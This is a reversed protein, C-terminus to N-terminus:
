VVSPTEKDTRKILTGTIEVRELKKSEDASPSTAAASAAASPAQQAHAQSALALAVAAALQLPQVPLLRQPRSIRRVM